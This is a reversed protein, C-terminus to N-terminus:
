TNLVKLFYDQLTRRRPIVGSVQYGAHVLFSNLQHVNEDKLQVYLRGQKPAASVVWSQELLRRAAAEAGEILVEVQTRDYSILSATEECSVLRGKNIVAVRNCLSEVEHMLHSSFLITVRAEEGLRRLLTLVDQTSEPDLGSTPEDLVLLEPESLMALALGLRQRLGHSLTGAKVSAYELMNTMDLARDLNVVRGCLEAHIKLNRRVSLYEYFSPREVLAGMRSAVGVFNKRVDRGFLSISGSTPRILGTLMHLLTSKGAGNPGLLGVTEGPQIDLSFGGVAFHSGYFKSVNSFSVCPPM